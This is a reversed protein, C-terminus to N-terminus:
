RARFHASVQPATLATPYIATEDLTGALYGSTPPTPWSALSGAGIQWYGDYAEAAIVAANQAVLAGDVYLMMGAPSLTAVVHHWGGDNYSAPSAISKVSGTYVGFVLKGANTMYLHRDHRASTVATTNGFGVLQGGRTTITKFWTETSFVQPNPHLTTGTLSANTGNFTAARNNMKPLVGEVNYTVGSTGYTTDQRTGSFDALVGAKGEEFHYYYSPSDAAVEVAYNTTTTTKAANFHATVRTASLATANYLSVEDISGSFFASGANNPLGAVTDGGIHWSGDVSYVSRNANTAVASGDVYLVMGASSHTAVVHHWASDNYAKGSARAVQANAASFNLRGDTGMYITRDSISSQATRNNGFSALQGGQTSGTKFWLEISYPGPYPILPTTFTAARTGNMTIARNTERILAGSNATGTVVGTSSYTADRNYGSYDEATFVSAAEDAPYYSWPKDPSIAARYNYYTSSAAALAVAWSNGVMATRASFAAQTPAFPLVAVSTAVLGMAVIATATARGGESRIARLGRDPAMGMSVAVLAGLTLAVWLLFQSLDGNGLWLGPLGAFPILLRAQGTIQEREIHTSDVSRNADGATTFSGDDNAEVIRHLRTTAVGGPEAAAPSDYEVVGGLPVPSDDTLETSLVVDGASVGPEMSGSQVVSGQMGFLGPVIAIM